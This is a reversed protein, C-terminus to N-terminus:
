LWFLLVSIVCDDCFVIIVKLCIFLKQCTFAVKKILFYAVCTLPSAQKVMKLYELRFHQDRM